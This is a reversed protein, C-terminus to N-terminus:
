IGWVRRPGDFSAVDQACSLRNAGSLGRERSNCRRIGVYRIEDRGREPIARSCSRGSM